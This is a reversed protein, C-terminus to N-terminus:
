PTEQEPDPNSEDDTSTSGDLSPVDDPANPPASTKKHQLMEYEALSQITTDIEPMPVIEGGQRRMSAWAQLRFADRHNGGALESVRRMTEECLPFHGKRCDDLGRLFLRQVREEKGMQSRAVQVEEMVESMADLGAIRAQQVELMADKVSRAVTAPNEIPVNKHTMQDHILVAVLATAACVSSVCAYWVGVYKLTRKMNGPEPRPAYYTAIKEARKEAQEAGKLWPSILWFKLGYDLSRREEGNYVQGAGPALISLWRAIVPSHPPRPDYGEPMYPPRDQEDMGLAHLIQDGEFRGPQRTPTSPVHQPPASGTAVPVEPTRPAIVEELVPQWPTEAPLPQAPQAVPEAGFMMEPPSPASSSAVPMPTPAPQPASLPARDVHLDPFLAGWGSSEAPQPTPVPPSVIIEEIHVPESHEQEIFELSGVMDDWDEDEFLSVSAVGGSSISPTSPTRVQREVLEQEQVLEAPLGEAQLRALVFMGEEESLSSEVTVFGRACMGRLTPEQLQLLPVLRPIVEDAQAGPQAHVIVAYM